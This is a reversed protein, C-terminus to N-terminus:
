EDDDLERDLEAKFADPLNKLTLEGKQQNYHAHGESIAHRDLDLSWYKTRYKMKVLSNLSRKDPVFGDSIQVDNDVFTKKLEDPNDSWVANALGDLSLPEDSENKEKCYDYAKQLFDDEKQQDLGKGKAFSKLTSVLKKTEEANVILESCGLFEKFYDSIKGRQKLFGIYRIDEDDNLWDTLCVRGAVRLNALDVHVTDKVEFTKEDIATSEINNIIAAVFWGVGSENSIHAMLVFGGTALGVPSAKNALVSLLKKSAEVFDIDETEFCSSLITSSPYNIEDTEFRGYGKGTRNRYLEQIDIVLKKVPDTLPLEDKRESVSAKGHPEKILKHIIASNVTFMTVGRGGKDANNETTRM